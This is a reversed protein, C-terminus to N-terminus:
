LLQRFLIFTFKLGKLYSQSTRFCKTRSGSYLKLASLCCCTLFSRIGHLMFHSFIGRCLMQIGKLLTADFVIINSENPLMLESQIGGQLKLSDIAM